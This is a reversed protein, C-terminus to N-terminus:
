LLEPDTGGSNPVTIKSLDYTVEGDQESGKILGKEYLGTLIQEAHRHLEQPATDPEYEMLKAAVDPATGSGLQALVYLVKDQWEGDSSYSGPPAIPKFDENFPQDAKNM